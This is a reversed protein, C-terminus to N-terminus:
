VVVGIQIQRIVWGVRAEKEQRSREYERGGGGEREVKGIWICGDVNLQMHTIGAMADRTRLVATVPLVM